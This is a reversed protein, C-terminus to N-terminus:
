FGAGPMREFAGALGQRQEVDSKKAEDLVRQHLLAQTAATETRLAGLAQELAAADFPERELADRVSKRAAATVKHRAIMVDPQDSFLRALPRVGGRRGREPSGSERKGERPGNRREGRPGDDRQGERAGEKREARERHEVRARPDETRARRIAGGVFLGFALLNLAGSIALAIILRKSLPTMPTM